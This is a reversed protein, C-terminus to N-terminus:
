KVTFHNEHASSNHWLAIMQQWPSLDRAGLDSETIPSQNAYDYIVLTIDCTEHAHLFTISCTFHCPWFWLTHWLHNVTQATLMTVTVPEPHYSPQINTKNVNPTSHLGRCENSYLGVWGPMIWSRYIRMRDCRLYLPFYIWEGSNPMLELCVNFCLWVKFWWWIPISYILQFNNYILWKHSLWKHKM